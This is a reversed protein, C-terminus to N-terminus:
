PIEDVLKGRSFNTINDNDANNYNDGSPFFKADADTSDYGFNGDSGACIIQFTTPNMPLVKDRNLSSTPLPPPKANNSWYPRCWHEQDTSSEFTAYTDSGDAAQFRGLDQADNLPNNYSRSDIYLYCTEKAYQALYSPYADGDSNLLRPTKFDYYPKRPAKTTGPGGTFPYRPDNYLSGLWFVLAEGEDLQTVWTYQGSANTTVYLALETPAIKPYCHRVHRVFADVDRFSPPYDGKDKKYAEVADGLQKVELVIAANRVRGVAMMVAPLLLAALVAIIGIVVLMEVLTFGRRHPSRRSMSYVGHIVLDCIVLM